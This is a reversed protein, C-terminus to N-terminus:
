APCPRALRPPDRSAPVALPAPGRRGRRAAGRRHEARCRRCGGRVALLRLSGAGQASTGTLASWVCSPLCQGGSTPSSYSLADASTLVPSFSGLMTRRVTLGLRTDYGARAAFGNSGAQVNATGTFESSSYLFTERGATAGQVRTGPAGEVKWATTGAEKAAVWVVVTYTGVLDRVTENLTVVVEVSGLRTQSEELGDHSVTVGPVVTAQVQVGDASGLETLTATYVPKGAADYVRVGAQFPRSALTTTLTSTVRTGDTSLRVATWGTGSLTQSHLLAEASAPVASGALALLVTLVLLVPRLRMLALTRRGRGTEQRPNDPTDTVRAAHAAPGGRDGLGVACPYIAFTHAIQDVTLGHQVALSIPMILESATPAVVVGGLVTGSGPRCFFKVFGDTIGQMKARANTALPLTM